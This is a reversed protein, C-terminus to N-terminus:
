SGPAVEGKQIPSLPGSSGDTGLLWSERPRPLDSPFFTMQKPPEPDELKRSPLGAM